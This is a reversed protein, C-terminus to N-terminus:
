QKNIKEGWGKKKSEDTGVKQKKLKGIKAKPLFSFFCITV